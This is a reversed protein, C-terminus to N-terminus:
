VQFIHINSKILKISIALLIIGFVKRLISFGAPGIKRQLWGSTRLVLYILALNIVIGTLINITEFEAKLAIITTMTGAGALLPFALPVISASGTDEQDAQFISRGLVM